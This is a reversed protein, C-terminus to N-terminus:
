ADEIAEKAPLKAKMLWVTQLTYARLASGFNALPTLGQYVFLIVLRLRRSLHVDGVCCIIIQMRGAPLASEIEAKAFTLRRQPSGGPEGM